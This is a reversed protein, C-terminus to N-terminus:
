KLSGLNKLIGRNEQSKEEPKIETKMEATKEEKSEQKQKSIERAMKEKAMEKAILTVHVKKFKWNRRHFRTRSATDAKAVAIRTAYLDLGNISVNAALNKLLKIFQAAAKIPYRGSMMGKRHPIEGHMPIARKKLAVQELKAVAEEISNNKIFKCIAIAHKNSIPLDKGHVVAEHMKQKPKAIQEAKPSPKETSKEEPKPEQKQEKEQKEQNEKAM